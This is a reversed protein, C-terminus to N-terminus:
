HQSQQLAACPAFAFSSIYIRISVRDARASSALICITKKKEQVCLKWHKRLLTDTSPSGFPLKRKWQPAVHKLSQFFPKVADGAISQIHGCFM